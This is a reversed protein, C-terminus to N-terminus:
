NFTNNQINIQCSCIKHNLYFGSVFSVIVSLSYIIYFKKKLYYENDQIQQYDM